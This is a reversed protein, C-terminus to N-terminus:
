PDRGTGRGTRRDGTGATGAAHGRRNGRHIAVGRRRRKLATEYSRVLDEAEEEFEVDTDRIVRFLGHGTLRFGPFVRDLFLVVLDDLLIFRVPGGADGAPLRIFREVQSPLPLLGRMGVGDEQRVLHLALVLGFNSIFPFPHAPDVALPTVVPFVREMFWSDLWTKETETLGKTGCLVVGAEGLLTLLEGLIRQQDALLLEARLKIDTLQQAATRGDASTFTAGAKAQGILAAVRVSYFEDLNSASISLFRLRELLPHRPNEAEELVRHNFDLWSLERNIFREPRPLDVSPEPKLDAKTRGHKTAASKGALTGVRELLEGADAKLVM